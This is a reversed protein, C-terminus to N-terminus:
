CRVGIQILIYLYTFVMIATNGNQGFHAHVQSMHHRAGTIIRLNPIIAPFFADCEPSFVVLKRCDRNKVEDLFSSYFAVAAYAIPLCIGDCKYSASFSVILDKSQNNSIIANNMHM